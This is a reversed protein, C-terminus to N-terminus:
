AEQRRTLSVVRVVPVTALIVLFAVVHFTGAAAFVVRYGFGHDLLYGAVQGFVIGGMAGGFGVLGAVSGVVSHPFLDTPLVMVLTSWSQQGFYAMSFIVIAWSVPSYPVLVIFPMMAASLGLAVKRAVGLSFERRVLYSSFWGGVLCGVGAAAYPIWALMGVAKINFGRADYLYKPLWFLYFYWAADSLFKAGVLGWTERVRFLDIWRATTRSEEPDEAGESTLYGAPPAFYTLAWWGTWLLGLVGTFLFIWRWSWFSLIVAILPPAIVAGLSTGANIIGMATARDRTPFWEAVARTAAPFGGGEGAGLLFRSVALMAFSAALAHSACALSWFLMIAIFGRRTGLADALKGGGAYMFAYSFLFASQLFSFQQNSLPIDKTIAAVAVPLTQRDLYSIAIAASVLVAIKWRLM